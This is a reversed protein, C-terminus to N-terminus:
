SIYHQRISSPIGTYPQFQNYNLPTFDIEREVGVHGTLPNMYIDSDQTYIGFGYNGYGITRYDGNWTNSVIPSAFM